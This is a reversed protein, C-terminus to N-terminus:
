AFLTPDFNGKIVQDAVANTVLLNTQGNLYVTAFLFSTLLLNKM